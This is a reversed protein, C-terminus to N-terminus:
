AHDVTVLSPRIVRGQMTYGRRLESDVVLEGDGAQAGSVAEHVKPDFRRGLAPIPELGDRALTELLHDRISRMGDLIKEESETAAEAALAADFADLTPLLSEIVRQSAREVNQAQDRDVRRRYNDFEAALRQLTELTDGAEMRAEALEELLLAEAAAPDGPLEVGQERGDGEPLDTGDSGPRSEEGATPSSFGEDEPARSAVPSERGDEPRTM